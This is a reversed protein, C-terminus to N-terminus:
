GTDACCQRGRWYCDEHRRRLVCPQSGTATGTFSNSAGRWGSRYDSLTRKREHKKPKSYWSLRVAFIIKSRFSLQLSQAGFQSQRNQAMNSLMQRSSRFPVMPQAQRLTSETIPTHQQQSARCAGSTILGLPAGTITNWVRLAGDAGASVIRDGGPSLAIDVVAATHGRLTLTDRRRTTEWIRATNDYSATVLRSGDPSFAVSSVPDTHGKLTLLPQGTTSDWIRAVNDYGATAIWTGDPSYSVGGVGLTHGTITVATEDTDLDWIRAANDSSGSAISKSDPSFAICNIPSNHGVLSHLEKATKADWVHVIRDTGGAAVSRGDPSYAVCSVMATRLKITQLSQGSNVDWIQVVSSMHRDGGGAAVRSGDHNLSVSLIPIGPVILTRILHMTRADWVQVTQDFFGIALRGGDGSLSLSTVPLRTQVPLFRIQKGTVSDWVRVSRDYGATVVQRGDALFIAATVHSRNGKLTELDLHCERQWYGWEFAHKAGANSEALLDLVRAINNNDYAQQALNMNAIYLLRNANLAEKRAKERAGIESVLATQREDLASKRQKALELVKANAALVKQENKDARNAESKASLESAHARTANETATKQAAVALATERIAHKEQVESTQRADTAVKRLSNANRANLAAAGALMAMILVVGASVLAARLLGRRYALRQRRLEARPMHSVVWDSDFVFAYIRNRVKLVGDEVRLAAPSGSYQFLRTQKM